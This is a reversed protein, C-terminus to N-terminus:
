CVVETSQHDSLFGGMYTLLYATVIWTSHEYDDLDKAITPLAVSVITTDLFGLFLGMLTTAVLVGRRWGSVDIPAGPPGPKPKDEEDAVSAEDFKSYPGSRVSWTDERGPSPAGNHVVWQDDYGPSLTEGSYPSGYGGPKGGTKIFSLVPGGAQRFDYNYSSRSYHPDKLSEHGAPPPRPLDPPGSQMRSTPRLSSNVSKVSEISKRAEKGWNQSDNLRPSRQAYPNRSLDPTSLQSQQGNPASLNPSNSVSLPWHKSLEEASARTKPEPKSLDPPPRPTSYRFTPDPKSYPDEFMDHSYQTYPADGNRSNSELQAVAAARQEDISKQDIPPTGTYRLVAHAAPLLTHPYPPAPTSTRRQHGDPASTWSERGDPISTRDRGYCDCDDRGCLRCVGM